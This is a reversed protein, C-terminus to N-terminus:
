LELPFLTCISSRLPGLLLKHILSSLRRAALKLCIPNDLRMMLQKLDITLTTSDFM